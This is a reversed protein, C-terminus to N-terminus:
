TNVHVATHCRLSLYSGSQGIFPQWNACIEQRRAQSTQYIWAEPRRSCLNTVVQLKNLETKGARGANM